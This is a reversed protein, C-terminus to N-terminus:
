GESFEDGPFATHSAAAAVTGAEEESGPPEEDPMPPPPVPKKERRKGADEMLFLHAKGKLYLCSVGPPLMGEEAEKEVRKVFAEQLDKALKKGVGAIPVAQDDQTRTAELVQALLRPDTLLRERDETLAVLSDAMGPQAVLAARTFSRNGLAKQILTPDTHPDAETLLNELSVPYGLGQDRHRRLGHLLREILDETPDRPVEYQKLRLHLKEKITEAVVTPPLKHMTLQQQVAAEFPARVTKDLKGAIKSLPHLPAEATSFLGVAYELLQPSDALKAADEALTLPANRDAQVGFAIANKFIKDALVRDVLEPVAHPATHHLLVALTTPYRSEDGRLHRLAALLREALEVHDPVHEKLYVQEHGEVTKTGVLEPLTGSAAHKRVSTQFPERMEEPLTEALTAPTMYPKKASTTARLMSVLLRPSELLASRDETLAVLADAKGLPVVVTHSRFSPDALAKKLAGGAEPDALEQLKSLLAPYSEGGHQHQARLATLLKDALEEAPTKVLPPPPFRDLYLSTKEKVTRSGVGHPLKGEKVAEAIAEAFADRLGKDVQGVVKAVQQLPAEASCLKGLAYELLLPGAALTKSDASLAIPASLDKRDALVVEDAHPKKTLAKLVDEDTADPEAQQKLQQVTLPYGASGQEKVRRLAEVLRVAREATADPKAM